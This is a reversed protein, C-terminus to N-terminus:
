WSYRLAGTGAYTTSRSAFEGDFKGLLTLGHALRYEAGASVLAAFVAALLAKKM